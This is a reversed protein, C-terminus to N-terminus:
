PVRKIERKVKEIASSKGVIADLPNGAEEDIQEVARRMRADDIARSAIHVLEHISPGTGKIVYYFAGAKISEVITPLEASKTLMIIPLAPDFAKLKKLLAIGDEEAHLDIDLFVIDYSRKRVAQMAAAATGVVECRLHDSVLAAIDEAFSTEDDVM